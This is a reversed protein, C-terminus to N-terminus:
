RSQEQPLISTQSVCKRNTLILHSRDITFLVTLRRKVRREDNKAVLGGGQGRIQMVLRTTLSNETPRDAQTLRVARTSHASAEPVAFSPLTWQYAFAAKVFSEGIM